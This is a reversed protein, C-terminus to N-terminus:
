SRSSAAWTSACTPLCARCCSAGPNAVTAQVQVNRTAPDVKPNIANITGAFRQGAFADVALTVAQGVALGALQQQPLSFDVHIPDLTQLTVLTAGANVYQGPQLATIGLRGAFPARIAKKAVNAAQQAM